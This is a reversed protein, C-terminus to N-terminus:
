QSPASSVRREESRVELMGELESMPTTPNRTALTGSGEHATNIILAPKSASARLRRRAARQDKARQGKGKRRASLGPPPDEGGYAPSNKKALFVQGRGVQWDSQRLPIVVHFPHEVAHIAKGLVLAEDEACPQRIRHQLDHFHQGLGGVCFATRYVVSIPCCSHAPPAVSILRHHLSDALPFWRISSLILGAGAPAIPHLLGHLNGRGEPAPESKHLTRHNRECVREVV